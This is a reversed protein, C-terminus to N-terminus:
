LFKRLTNYEEQTIEQFRPSHVCVCGSEFYWGDDQVECEGGYYTSAETEVYERIDQNIPIEAVFKETNEIESQRIDLSYQIFKTDRYTENLDEIDYQDTLDSANNVGNLCAVGLDNGENIKNQLECAFDEVQGTTIGTPILLDFGIQLVKDYKM